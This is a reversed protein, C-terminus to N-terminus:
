TTFIQGPLDRFGRSVLATGQSSLVACEFRFDQALLGPETCFLATAVGDAIACSQAVVWTAAVQTVPLGTLADLIHHLGEGWTRRHPSSGCVAARTVDVTGIVFGDRGPQELGVRVPDESRILLDGSGDIIFDEVGHSVLIEGIRDALFGKGVAGVDLLVPHSMTLHNGTHQVVDTWTGRGRHAGIREAAGSKVAFSLQPDYGLAVLDTGVLPDIRGHTASYLRDYLDLMSADTCPIEAVVPGNGLAGDAIRRVLSSPAFRSWFGEFHEAYDHIDARAEPRLQSPTHISWTTGTTPFSWREPLHPTSSAPTCPSCMTQQEGKKVGADPEGLFAAGM